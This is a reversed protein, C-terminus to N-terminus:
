SKLGRPKEPWLKLKKILDNVDGPSFLFGNHDHKVLDRVGAINSAIIPLGSAMAELIVYPMGERFSPFVFM